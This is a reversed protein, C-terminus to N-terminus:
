SLTSKKGLVEKLVEKPLSRTEKDILMLLALYVLAGVATFVLTVPISTSSPLLFLLTGTVVSAFAYKAVSRWPFTVKMMGRVIAVQVLFMAFRMASNIISVYLAAELPQGLAYTTLVYYTTPITVAFHVYPLSFAIFIKSKVMSKFTLKEKDVSEVGFLVSGYIGSLVGVLADVALIALVLGAGAFESLEPRLLVIYSNSLAVAIATMPIAFMLVTKLGVTVDESKQESLLKPYLAFSLFSSHTIVGVVIAAAGYIGRSGEGGLSFLLIFVFSAIQNGVVTYINALSGKLWEKVYGWQIREKM